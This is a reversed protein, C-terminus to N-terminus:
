LVKIGEVKLQKLKNNVEKLEGVTNFTNREISTLSNNILKDEKAMGDILGYINSTHIRIATFQGLLDTGTDQSMTQFAGKEATQEKAEQKKQIDIGAEGLSTGISTMIGQLAPIQEEYTGIMEDTRKAVRDMLEEEGLKGEAYENYMAAIDDSYSGIVKELVITRMMDSVINRFTTSAKEKFSTLADTGEDFWAWLSQVFNDVLPEYLTSVYKQLEAQYQDYQKSLDILTELTEKTEGVLKDGYNDIIAQAAEKNIMNDEGFLEGFNNNRAWTVLDETKQSRGGIGSGLFGKKSSRTEIRLNDIAKSKGEDYGDSKLGKYAAIGGGIDGHAIMTTPLLAEKAWKTFWGGGSENVYTAQEENVKEDYAKKVETNIDKADKLSQLNDNGFWNDEAQKAKLVALEYEHVADRLKNIAAVEKAYDEYEAHNDSMLSSLQNFLQIAVQIIALIASASELARMVGVATEKTKIIGGVTTTVFTGIYGIFSIIKGEEDGIADGIASISKFLEAMKDNVMKQSQLVKKNAKERDDAAKLYGEKAKDIEDQNQSAEADKLATKAEAFRNNARALEDQSDAFTKFPNRTVLEDFIQQIATSYEKLKSPDLVGTAQEKMASLQVLLSNLTETSTNKLNELARVYEPNEKLMDLDSGSLEKWKDKEAKTIAIKIQKVKETDGKEEAKVQEQKLTKIDKAYKEEIALRKDTYNQYKDLLAKLSEEEKKVQDDKNAAKRDGVIEKTDDIVKQQNPTLTGTKEGDKKQVDRLKQELREIAEIENQYRFNILESEEKVSKEKLAIRDSENKSQLDWLEKYLQKQEDPLIENNSNGKESDNGGVKVSKKLDKTESFSQVIPTLKEFLEGMAASDIVGEAFKMKGFIKSLKFAVLGFGSITYVLERLQNLLKDVKLDKFKDETGAFADGLEKAEISIQKLGESEQGFGKLTDKVAAISDNLANIDKALEKPNDIINNSM